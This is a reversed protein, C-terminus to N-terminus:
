EIYGLARLAELAKEEEFVEQQQISPGLTVADQDLEEILM